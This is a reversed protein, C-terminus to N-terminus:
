TGGTVAAAILMAILLALVACLAWLVTTLARIKGDYPTPFDKPDKGEALWRIYALKQEETIHM